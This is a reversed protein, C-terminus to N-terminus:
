GNYCQVTVLFVLLHCCTVGGIFREYLKGAQWSNREAGALGCNLEGGPGARVLVADSVLDVDGPADGLIVTPERDGAIPNLHQVDLCIVPNLDGENLNSSILSLSALRVRQEWPNSGRQM